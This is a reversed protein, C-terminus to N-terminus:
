SNSNCKAPRYFMAVGVMVLDISYFNHVITHHLCTAAQTAIFYHHDWPILSPVHKSCYATNTVLCFASLALTIFYVRVRALERGAHVGEVM